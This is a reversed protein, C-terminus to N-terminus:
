LLARLLVIVFALAVVAGALPLFRRMVDQYLEPTEGHNKAGLTSAYAQQAMLNRLRPLKAVTLMWVAGIAFFGIVMLQFGRDFDNIPILLAMLPFGLSLVTPTWGAVLEVSRVTQENPDKALRRALPRRGYMLAASTLILAVFSVFLVIFQTDQM